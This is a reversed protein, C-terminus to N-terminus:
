FHAYEAVARAPEFGDRDRRELARIAVHRVEAVAEAEEDDIFGVVEPRATAVFRELHRDGRCAHTQARGWRALLRRCRAERLQDPWRRELKRDAIQGSAKQRSEVSDRQM